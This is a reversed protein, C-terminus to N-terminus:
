ADSRRIEFVAALAPALVLRELWAEITPPDAARVHAVIEDDVHGFKVALQRLLMERLGEAKGEAKGEAFVRESYTMLAEETAPSIAQIMGHIQEFRQESLVLDLYRLLRHMARLGGPATAVAHWADAWADFHELLVDVRRADRLLWLAVMPFAALARRRLEDDTAASIDDVILEFAPVFSALGPVTSPEPRVLEHMRSPMARHGEAHGVVVPVIAPLSELPHEVIHRDWIRMM